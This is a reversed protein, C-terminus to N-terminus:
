KMRIRDRAAFRTNRITSTMMFRMLLRNTLYAPSDSIQLNLKRILKKVAITENSSWTATESQTLSNELDM